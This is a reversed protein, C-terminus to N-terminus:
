RDRADHRCRTPPEDTMADTDLTANTELENEVSIEKM